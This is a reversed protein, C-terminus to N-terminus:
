RAMNIELTPPPKATPAPAPAPAPPRPTTSKAKAVAEATATASPTATAQPSAVPALPVVIRVSEKSPAQDIAYPVYGDLSVVIKRAEKAAPDLPVALPTKGIVSGGESV